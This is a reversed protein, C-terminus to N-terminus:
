RRPDEDQRRDEWFSRPSALPAVIHAHILAHADEDRSCAAENARRHHGLQKTCAMLNNPQWGGVCRRRGDRSSTGLHLSAVQGVQVTEPATGDASPTMWRPKM